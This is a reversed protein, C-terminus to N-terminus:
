AKNVELFKMGELWKKCDACVKKNSKKTSYLYTMEGCYGCEQKKGLYVDRNSISHGFGSQALRDADTTLHRNRVERFEGTAGAPIKLGAIDVTKSLTNKTVLIGGQRIVKRCKRCLKHHWDAALFHRCRRCRKTM